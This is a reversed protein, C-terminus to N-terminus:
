WPETLELDVDIPLALWFESDPNCGGKVLGWLGM